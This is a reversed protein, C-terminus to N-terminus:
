RIRERDLGRCTPRPSRRLRSVERALYTALDMALGEGAAVGLGRCTSAYGCRPYRRWRDRYSRMARLRAWARNSRPRRACGLCTRATRMATARRTSDTM